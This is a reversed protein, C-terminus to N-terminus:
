HFSVTLLCVFLVTPISLLFVSCHSCSLAHGAHPFPDAKYSSTRLTDRILPHKPLSIFLSLFFHPRTSIFPLANRTSFLACAFGQLPLRHSPRLLALRGPAWSGNRAHETAWGHGARKHGRPSCGALSRRGHSKGPLFVPTPQWKRRWPTKGIWLHFGRRRWQCSSEKGSLWWPPGYKKTINM